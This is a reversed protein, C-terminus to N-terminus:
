NVAICVEFSYLFPIFAWGLCRKNNGSPKRTPIYSKCHKGKIGGIYDSLLCFVKAEKKELTNERTYLLNKWNM